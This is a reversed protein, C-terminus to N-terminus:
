EEISNKFNRLQFKECCINRRRSSRPESNSIKGSRVLDEATRVRGHGIKVIWEIRIDQFVNYKGEEGEEEDISIRSRCLYSPRSRLDGKRSRDIREFVEEFRCVEEISSDVSQM